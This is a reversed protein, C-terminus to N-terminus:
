RKIHITLTIGTRIARRRAFADQARPLKASSCTGKRTQERLVAAVFGHPQCDHEGELMCLLSDHLNPHSFWM